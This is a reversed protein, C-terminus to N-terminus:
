PKFISNHFDEWNATTRLAVLLQIQRLCENASEEWAKKLDLEQVQKILKLSSNWYIPLLNIFERESFSADESCVFLGVLLVSSQLPTISYNNEAVLNVNNQLLVEMADQHGNGVDWILPSRADRPSNVYAGQPEFVETRKDVLKALEINGYIKCTFLLSGWIVVDLQTPMDRIFKEAVNLLNAHSLLDMICGYHEIRPNLKHNELDMCSLGRLFSEIICERQLLSHIHGAYLAGLIAGHLLLRVPQAQSILIAYCDQASSWGPLLIMILQIHFFQLNDGELRLALKTMLYAVVIGLFFDGTLLLSRLNGCAVSGQFLTPPSFAIRSAAHHTAYTGDALITPRKFSMAMFNVQQVKQSSDNSEEESVSLFHLESLYRKISATGGLSLVIDLTKRKIDLNYSSLARLVDMFMNAVVERHSSKLETLQDLVIFKVNNDSQSLLLQYYTNAVVRRQEGRNTRCLERLLLITQPISHNNSPDSPFYKNSFREKVLETIAMNNEGWRKPLEDFMHLAFLHKKVFKGMLYWNIWGYKDNKHIAILASDMAERIAASMSAEFSDIAAFLRADMALLRTPHAHVHPFGPNSFSSVM